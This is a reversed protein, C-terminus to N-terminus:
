GKYTVARYANVIGDGYFSNFGPSSVCTATYSADRGEQEYSRVGGPPCETNVASKRLVYGTQRSDYGFWKGSGSGFRDVVLAAVGAAHPAAMSTGQLYQYYGCRSAGKTVATSACQRIVGAATGAETIYGKQNVLGTEILVRQPAASLILNENTRYSPTGFGDRFWGGPAAVEIEGSRLDTAWNSYDAKTKSPGVSSVGIVNPGETPLDYCTANDITRPYAVGDPFNPSSTDQRPKSLDENGNGLAAVMTVDRRHAYDLVRTMTDITVDQQAAQEANDEPAGGECNFAWPDVYFSMNVVDLRQDAAYTIADAVPGLFFYGSDQGARVNVLEVGPAVGSVGFGNMAAGITGAVHTGHGDDDVTAPDKCGDYECEGDILPIDRTFNRSLSANFNGTIDPHNAQVGTDIVGVRVRKSGDTVAHARDTDLMDLGWLKTDLPDAAAAARPAAKTAAKPATAKPTATARGKGTAGLHEKEVADDQGAAPAKGQLKPASGISIEAAANDVGTMGRAKKAFGGDTSAVTVLGIDRNTSTVTGGAAKVQRVVTDVSAGKEVLVVYRGSTTAGSASSTQATTAPAAPQATASSATAFAATGLAAAGVFATMRHRRM